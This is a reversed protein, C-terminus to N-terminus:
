RQHSVGESRIGTREVPAKMLFHGLFVEGPRWSSRLPMEAFHGLDAKWSGLNGLLQNGQGPHRSQFGDAKDAGGGWGGLWVLVVVMLALDEGGLRVMGMPLRAM